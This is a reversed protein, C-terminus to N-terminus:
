RSGANRCVSPGARSKLGLAPMRPGLRRIPLIRNIKAATATQPTSAPQPPPPELVLLVAPAGGSVTGVAAADVVGGAVAVVAVVEVLVVADPDVDAELPEDELALEPTLEALEPELEPPAVGDLEPPVDEPPV